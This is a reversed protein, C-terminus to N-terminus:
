PKEREVCEESDEDRLECGDVGESQELGKVGDELPSPEIQLRTAVDGVICDRLKVDGSVGCDSCVIGLADLMSQEAPAFRGFRKDIRCERKGRGISRGM